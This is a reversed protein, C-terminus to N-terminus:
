ALISSHTAMEKELPDEQGLFLICTEQTEPVPPCNKVLLVVQSAWLVPYLWIFLYVLLFIIILLILKYFSPFCDSAYIGGLCSKPSSSSLSMFPLIELSTVLPLVQGKTFSSTSFILILRLVNHYVLYRLHKMKHDRGQAPYKGVAKSYLCLCHTRTKYFVRECVAGLLTQYLSHAVIAALPIILFQVQSQTHFRSGRGWLNQFAIFLCSHSQVSM